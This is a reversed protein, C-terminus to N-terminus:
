RTRASRRGVLKDAYAKRYKQRLLSHAASMLPPRKKLDHSDTAVYDIIEDKLWKNMRHDKLFGKGKLISSCNMQYSVDHKEKLRYANHRRYLCAYREVHAIIVDYGSRELMGVAAEMEKYSIDPVFELLITDTDALSPLRGELAFRELAPTYMIEAGAFLDMEYGKSRCYMRAEKLRKKILKSKLPYVGPTVHPTFFISTVGDAHAADLMVEMDTKTKAGDDVGYLFHSHIDVYGKM